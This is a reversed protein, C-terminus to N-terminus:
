GLRIPGLVGIQPGGEWVWVTQGLIVLNPVIIECPSSPTNRHVMCGRKWVEPPPSEAIEIKPGGLM